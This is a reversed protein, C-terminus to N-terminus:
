QHPPRSTTTWCISADHKSPTTDATTPKMSDIPYNFVKHCNSVMHRGHPLQRGNHAESQQHPLQRNNSVVLRRNPYNDATSRKLGDILYSDATPRKLGDIAHQHGVTIPKCNDTGGGIPYNFVEHYNSVMHWGHPLQIGMPTPQYSDTKVVLSTTPQYSDLLQFGQGM